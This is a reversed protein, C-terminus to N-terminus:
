SSYFLDTLFMEVSARNAKNQQMDNNEEQVSYKNECVLVLHLTVIPYSRLM